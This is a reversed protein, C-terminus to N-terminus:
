DIMTIEYVEPRRSGPLGNPLDSIVRPNRQCILAFRVIVAQLESDVTPVQETSDTERHRIVDPAVM